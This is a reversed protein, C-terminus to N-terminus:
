MSELSGEPVKYDLEKVFYNEIVEALLEEFTIADRSMLAMYLEILPMTAENTKISNFLVRENDEDSLFYFTDTVSQTPNDIQLVTTAPTTGEEKNYYESFEIRAVEVTQGEANLLHVQGNNDLLAM